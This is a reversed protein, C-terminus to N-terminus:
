LTCDSSSLYWRYFGESYLASSSFQIGPVRLFFFLSKFTTKQGKCAYWFVGMGIFVCVFVFLYVFLYKQYARVLCQILQDNTQTELRWFQLYYLKHQKYSILKSPRICCRVCCVLSYTSLCAPTVLHFDNHECKNSHQSIKNKPLFDTLVQLFIPLFQTIYCFSLHLILFGDLLLYINLFSVDPPSLFTAYKSYLSVLLVSLCAHHLSLHPKVENLWFCSKFFMISMKM